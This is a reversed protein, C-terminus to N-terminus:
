PQNPRRLRPATPLAAGGVELAVPGSRL